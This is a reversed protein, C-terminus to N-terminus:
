IKLISQKYESYFKTITKLIKKYSNMKQFFDETDTEKEVLVISSEDYFVDRLFMQFDQVAMTENNSTLSKRAQKEETEKQNIVEFESVYNKFNNM